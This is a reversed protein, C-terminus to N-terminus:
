RAALAYTNRIGQGKKECVFVCECAFVCGHVCGVSLHMNPKRLHARDKHLTRRDIRIQQSKRV